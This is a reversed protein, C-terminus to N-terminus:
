MKGNGSDFDISELSRYYGDAEKPDLMSCLEITKLSYEGFDYDIFDQWVNSPIVKCVTRRDTSKVYFRGKIKMLTAHLQIDEEGNDHATPLPQVGALNVKRIARVFDLFRETTANVVPPVYVVRGESFTGIGKFELQPTKDPYYEQLLKHSLRLKHRAADIAIDDPLHMVCLTLHYTSSDNLLPAFQPFRTNVHERFAVTRSALGELRVSLFYNPTLRVM